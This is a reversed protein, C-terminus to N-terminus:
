RMSGRWETGDVFRIESVYVVIAYDDNFTYGTGQALLPVLEDFSVIPREIAVSVTSPTQVILPDAGISCTENDALHGIQILPSTGSLSAEVEELEADCPATVRRTAVSSRYVNWGLRVAAIPKPSFSQISVQPIVAGRPRPGSSVIRVEAPHCGSPPHYYPLVAIGNRPNRAAEQILKQGMSPQLILTFLILLALVSRRNRHNM